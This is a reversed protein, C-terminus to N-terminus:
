ALAQYTRCRIDFKGAFPEQTVRCGIGARDAPLFEPVRHTFRPHSPVLPTRGAASASLGLPFARVATRSARSGSRKPYEDACRVPERPRPGTGLAHYPVTGSARCEHT